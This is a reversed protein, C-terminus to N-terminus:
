SIAGNDVAVVQRTITGYVGASWFTGPTTGTSPIEVSLQALFGNGSQPPTTTPDTPVTMVNTTTISLNVNWSFTKTQNTVGPDITLTVVATVDQIPANLVVYEYIKEFQPAKSDTLPSTWTGVVNVGLDTEAVGWADLEVTTGSVPRCATVQNLRATGALGNQAPISYAAPTGYPLPGFWQQTPLYFAYTVGTAPFSLYYARDSFWAQSVKQDSIPIDQLAGRIKESILQPPNYGDFYYVGEESLWFALSQCVAVSNASVCGINAVRRAVFTTEDDGYVCWVTRTKFLIAISQLSVGQVPLDGPNATFTADNPITEQGVLIVGFSNDFSWPIGYDSYWLQCQSFASFTSASSAESNYLTFVWVREKHSFVAGGVPPPDRHLDLQQNSAISADALTDTYPASGTVNALFLWTTQAASMRYLNTSYTSGDAFTGSWPSSPTLTIDQSTTITVSIAFPAFAGADPSTEQTGNGNVVSYTYAYYYTGPPISGSSTAAGITFTPAPQQWVYPVSAAVGNGQYQQGANTYLVNGYQVATTFATAGTLTFKGSTGYQQVPATAGPFSAVSIEWFTSEFQFFQFSVLLAPEAANTFATLNIRGRATTPVGLVRVPDINVGSVGNTPDVYPGATTADIGTVAKISVLEVREAPGPM